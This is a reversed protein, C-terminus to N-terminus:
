IHILSLDRLAWRATGRAAAGLAADVVAPADVGASAFAAVTQAADRPPFAADVGAALARLAARSSEQARWEAEGLRACAWACAAVDRPRLGDCRDAVADLLATTAALAGGADDDGDFPLARRAAGLGWLVDAAEKKELYGFDRVTAPAGGTRRRALRCLYVILQDM